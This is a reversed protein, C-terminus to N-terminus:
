PRVITLVLLVTLVVAVIISSGWTISIVKKWKQFRVSLEHFALHYREMQYATEQLLKCDSFTKCRESAKLSSLILLFEKREDLPFTKVYVIPRDQFAEEKENPLDVAILRNGFHNLNDKM